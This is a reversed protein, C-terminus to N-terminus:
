EKYGRIIDHGAKFDFLYFLIRGILWQKSRKKDGKAGGSVVFIEGLEKHTRHAFFKEANDRGMNIIESADFQLSEQKIATEHSSEGDSKANVVSSLQAIAKELLAIAKEIKKVHIDQM